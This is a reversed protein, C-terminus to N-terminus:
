DIGKYIRYLRVVKRVYDQTERYRPIGKARRVAEPGANYAAVTRVIDGDFMNALIRLYRTGGHINQAPDHADEVYMERATPPMLQMLGRAGVHSVAMPDFNSEAVIIARVLEHPIGYKRAAEDIVADWASTEHVKQRKAGSRPVVDVRGAKERAAKSPGIESRIHTVGDEDVWTRVVAKDEALASSAALSVALLAAFSKM